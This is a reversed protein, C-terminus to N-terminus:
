IPWICRITTGAGKISEIRCTGGSLESRERMTSLGLGRKATNLDFGQGNDQITLEIRGNRNQLSLNVLSAKSHKAINNLAEQCIRFVPTRLSDPIENEDIDIEKEISVSSYVKQFERCFWNIAPLIGLDDLVSPRLDSMIRRTEENVQQVRSVVDRLEQCREDQEIQCLAKEISLKIASLSAAISDHLEGAIRKREKEQATMLESSLYRLKKESEKLQEEARKREAVDKVLLENAKALEATRELVRGELEGKARRLAEEALARQIGAGLASAVQELLKVMNLPIMNEKHDAIHILGIMHTGVHIPILAVSEYGAQNCVDRTQGEDEESVTALFRTTGNMYFSGGETYFSLRPDTTGKVVNICMCKDTKISLPSETEYFEQSFGLYAMYPINGHEDLLRIGAAECDTFKKMEMVFEELLPNLDTHKNAIELFKRSAELEIEAKKREIAYLLARRLLGSDIQGKVLYDQAGLHVAQVGLAEDGSGTMIVIPLSPFQSRVKTLTELGRSDPLGLDLLVVDVEQSLLFKLGQGLKEAISIAFNGGAEKLVERVLRADGPNDEILLIKM